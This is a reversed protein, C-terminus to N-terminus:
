NTGGVFELAQRFVGIYDANTGFIGIGKYEPVYNNRNRVDHVEAQVSMCFNWKGCHAVEKSYPISGTVIFQKKLSNVQTNRNGSRLGSLQSGGPLLVAPPDPHNTFGTEIGDSGICKM